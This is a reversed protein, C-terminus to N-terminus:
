EDHNLSYIVFLLFFLILISVSIIMGQNGWYEIASGTTSVGAFGGVANMILMITNATALNHKKFKASIMSVGIVYITGIGASIVIFIAITMYHNHIIFPIMLVSTCMIILVVILASIKNQLKDLFMSIPITFLLNGAVMYINILLAQRYEVGSEIAYIVVFNSLALLIYNSVLICIIPVAAHKIIKSPATYNTRPPLIPMSKRIFISPLIIVSAFLASIQFLDVSIKTAKVFLLGVGLAIGTRFAVNMVAILTTRSGDTLLSTGWYQMAAFLCFGGIGFIFLSLMSMEVNNSMPFALLALNRIILSGLIVIFLGYRECLKPFLPAILLNGALEMALISGIQSKPLGMQHLFLAFSTVNIGVSVGYFLMIFAICLIFYHKSGSDIEPIARQFIM